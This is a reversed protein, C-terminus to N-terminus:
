RLVAMENHTSKWQSIIKTDWHRIFLCHADMQMVFYQGRYLRDGIHRATVPGTAYQADMTYIAIQKRYICIPQKPDVSCPIELDLCGIDGPVTQDVAGVFLREPHDARSFASTITERCQFDRYSAIMLFITGQDQIKSGIKNMEQEPSPSWFRPVKLNIIPMKDTGDEIPIKGDITIPPWQLEYAAKVQNAKSSSSSALSSDHNQHNNKSNSSKAQQQKPPTRFQGPVIPPPEHVNKLSREENQHKSLQFQQQQQQQEQQLNSTVAAAHIALWDTSLPPLVLNNNGDLNSNEQDVSNSIIYNLKHIPEIVTEKLEAPKKIKSLIPIPATRKFLTTNEELLFVKVIALFWAGILFFLFYRFFQLIVM